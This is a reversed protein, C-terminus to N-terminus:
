LLINLIYVVNVVDKSYKYIYIYVSMIKHDNLILLKVILVLINNNM